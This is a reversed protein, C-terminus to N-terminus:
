RRGRKIYSCWKLTIITIRLFIPSIGHISNRCSQYKVNQIVLGVVSLLSLSFFFYILINTWFFAWQHETENLANSSSEPLSWRKIMFQSFPALKQADSKYFFDTFFWANAAAPLNSHKTRLKSAWCDSVTGRAEFVPECLKLHAERARKTHQM